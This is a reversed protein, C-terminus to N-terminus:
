ITWTGLITQKKVAVKSLPRRKGRCGKILFTKCNKLTQGDWSEGLKHPTKTTRRTTKLSLPRPTELMARSSSKKLTFSAAYPNKYIEFRDLALRIM